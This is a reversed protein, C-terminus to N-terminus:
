VDKLTIAANITQVQVSGNSINVLDVKGADSEVTVNGQVNEIKIPGNDSDINISTGTPLAVDYDVRADDPSVKQLMHTRLTVRNGTQTADIEVRDSKQTASVQLQRSSSAHVTISGNQNVIFVTSGPAVTYHLDKHTDAVSVVAALFTAAGLCVAWNRARRLRQNRHMM